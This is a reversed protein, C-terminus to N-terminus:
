WDLNSITSRINAADAEVGDAYDAIRNAAADLPEFRYKNIQTRTPIM